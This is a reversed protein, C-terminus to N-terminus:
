LYEFDFVDHSRIYLWSTVKVLNVLNGLFNGIVFVADVRKNSKNLLILFNLKDM